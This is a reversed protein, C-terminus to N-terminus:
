EESPALLRNLEGIKQLRMATHDLADLLRVYERVTKDEERLFELSYLNTLLPPMPEPRLMREVELEREILRKRQDILRLLLPISDARPNDCAKLLMQVSNGLVKDM